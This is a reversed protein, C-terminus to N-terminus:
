NLPQCNNVRLVLQSDVLSLPPRLLVPRPMAETGRPFLEEVKGQGEEYPAETYLPFFAPSPYLCRSPFLHFTVFPSASPTMLSMPSAAPADGPGVEGRDEDAMDEEYEGVGDEDVDEDQVDPKMEAEAPVSSMMRSFSFSFSFSLCTPFPVPVVVQFAEVDGGEESEEEDEDAGVM